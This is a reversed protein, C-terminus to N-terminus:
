YEMMKKKAIKLQRLILFKIKIFIKKTIEYLKNFFKSIAEWFKKTMEKLSEISVETIEDKSSIDSIDEVSPLINRNRFERISDAALIISKCIGHKSIVEILSEIKEVFSNLEEELKIAENLENSVETYEEYAINIDIIDFITNNIFIDKNTNLNNLSEMMQFTNKM